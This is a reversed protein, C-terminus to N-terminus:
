GAYSWGMDPLTLTETVTIEQLLEAHLPEGIVLDYAGGIDIIDVVKFEIYAAADELIPCGTQPGERYQVGVMKDPNKRRAKSYPVIADKDQARFINLAFVKSPKVLGYSHSSKQLAVVVRRPDFSAQTVWNVVMANADDGYRSTLSYFGYPILLLADKIPDESM